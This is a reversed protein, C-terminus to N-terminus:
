LPQHSKRRVSQFCMQPHNPRHEPHNGQFQDKFLYRREVLGVEIFDLKVNFAEDFFIKELKITEFGFGLKHAAKM